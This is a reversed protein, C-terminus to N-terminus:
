KTIRPTVPHGNVQVAPLPVTGDDSPTTLFTTVDLYLVFPELVQTCMGDTRYWSTISISLTDNTREYAPLSINHCPTPLNGEIKVFFGSTDSILDLEDIYIASISTSKEAPPAVPKHSSSDPPSSFRASAMFISKDNADPLIIAMTVPFHGLGSILLLVPLLINM